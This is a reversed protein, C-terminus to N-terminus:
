KGKDLIEGCKKCARFGDKKGLRAPKGCHPCVLMLRSLKVPMLKDIIGGPFNRTPKQHKKAVAVKEVIATLKEPFVKIVKSKKGKDKGSLVLVTDGKRIRPQM